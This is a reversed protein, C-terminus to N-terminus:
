LPSFLFRLTQRARADIVLLWRPLFATVEDAHCARRAVDVGRVPPAASAESV